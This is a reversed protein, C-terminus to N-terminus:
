LDELVAFEFSAAEEVDILGYIWQPELKPILKSLNAQLNGLGLQCNKEAIAEMIKSTTSNNSMM